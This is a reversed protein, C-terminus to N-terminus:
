GQHIGDFGCSKEIGVRVVKRQWWQDIGNGDVDLTGEMMMESLEMMMALIERILILVILKPSKPIRLEIM